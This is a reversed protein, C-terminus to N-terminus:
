EKLLKKVTLMSGEDKLLKLKLVVVEEHTEWLNNGLDQWEKGMNRKGLNGEGLSQLVSVFKLSWPSAYGTRSCRRLLFIVGSILSNFSLSHVTANRSARCLSFFAQASKYLFAFDPM